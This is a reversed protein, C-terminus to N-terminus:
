IKNIIQHSLEKIKLKFNKHLKSWDKELCFNIVKIWRISKLLNRMNYSSRLLYYKSMPIQIYQNVNPRLIKGVTDRMLNRNEITKKSIM